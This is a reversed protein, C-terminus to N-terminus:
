IKYKSYSKKLNNGWNKGCKLFKYKSHGKSKDDCEWEDAYDCNKRPVDFSFIKVCTVGAGGGAIPAFKYLKVRFSKISYSDNKM